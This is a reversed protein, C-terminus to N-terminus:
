NGGHLDTFKNGMNPLNEYEIVIKVRYTDLPAKRHQKTVQVKGGESMVSQAKTVLQHLPRSIELVGGRKYRLENYWRLVESYFVRRANDYKQVQTDMHVKARNAFAIDHDVEIDVVRGNSGNAYLRDDFTYDVQQCAKVSQEVVALEEPQYSRLAALLGDPRIREGIDPFPKYNNDDGYLNLAFAKRGWELIRTEYTRFGNKVLFDECIGIGDEAVAPHSMFAVNANVGFAYDGEETISTSDLFVTGKPIHAGPHLMGRAATPKYRFGFYQHNTCYDVLNLMGVEKTEHDEYLVVTQPNYEIGNYVQNNERYRPIIALITADCPMEVRFTHQGFQREMGTQLGRTEAGSLVLMQGLHQSQMQIRASSDYIHFSNMGCAGLWKASLENPPLKSQGVAPRYNVDASLSTNM